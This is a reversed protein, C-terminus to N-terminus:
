MSQQMYQKILEERLAAIAQAIQVGGEKSLLYGSGFLTPQHTLLTQLATDAKGAAQAENMQAM